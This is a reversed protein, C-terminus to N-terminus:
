VIADLGLNLPQVSPRGVKVARPFQLRSEIETAWIEWLRIQFKVATYWVFAGTLPPGGERQIRISQDITEGGRRPNTSWPVFVGSSSLVLVSVLLVVVCLQGWNLSACPSQRQKSVALM